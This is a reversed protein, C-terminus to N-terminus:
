RPGSAARAEPEAKVETCSYGARHVASCTFTRGRCSATWSRQNWGPEDNTIEIENPPCGVFGSSPGRLDASTCAALPALLVALFGFVMVKRVM